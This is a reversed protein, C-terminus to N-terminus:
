HLQVRVMHALLTLSSGRTRTRHLGLLGSEDACNVCIPFPQQAQVTALCVLPYSWTLDKHECPCVNFSSAHPIFSLPPTMLLTNM